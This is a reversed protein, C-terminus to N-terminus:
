KSSHGGAQKSPPEPAAQGSAPPATSPSPAPASAHEAPAAMIVRFRAFKESYEYSLVNEVGQVARDYAEETCQLNGAETGIFVALNHYQKGNYERVNRSLVLAKGTSIVNM